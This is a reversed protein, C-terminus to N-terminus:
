LSVGLLEPLIKQELSTVDTGINNAVNELLEKKADESLAAKMVDEFGVGTFHKLGETIASMDDASFEEKESGMLSKVKQGLSILSM